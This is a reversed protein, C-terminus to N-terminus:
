KAKLMQPWNLVVTMLTSAQRDVLVPLLFLGDRSVEFSSLNNNSIRAEFLAKPVGFQPKSGPVSLKVEVAMVKNDPRYYYLERGDQSWIPSQGAETSIQWKASPQPFSVVYIENRKSEDSRYALWRGDPSLKPQNARFETKVYPFPKRDGFLPLVWIESKSVTVTFLYRGDRSVDWPSKVATEVVEEAGTNDAAKQYIKGPVLSGYFIHTGDASWVANANAGNSTLRSETGRALDRIWL